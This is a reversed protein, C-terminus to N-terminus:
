WRDKQTVETSVLRANALKLGNNGVEGEQPSMAINNSFKASSYLQFSFQILVGMLTRVLVM